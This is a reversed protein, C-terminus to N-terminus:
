NSKNNLKVSLSIVYWSKASILLYFVFLRAIFSYTSFCVDM